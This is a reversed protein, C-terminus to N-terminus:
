LRTYAPGNRQYEEEMVLKVYEDGVPFYCEINPLNGLYDHEENDYLNHSCGLFKYAESGSVGFLKVNTNGQAVNLRVQENARSLIFNLMTYFYPKYGRNALGVCFNIAAPESIGINLFQNPFRKRFDEIFTFGVDAVVLIVKSDKEALETLKDIFAKRKNM